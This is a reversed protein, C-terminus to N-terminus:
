VSESLLQVIIITNKRSCVDKFGFGVYHRFLAPVHYKYFFIFKHIMRKFKGTNIKNGLFFLMEM